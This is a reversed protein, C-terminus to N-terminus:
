DFLTPETPRITPSRRGRLAFRDSTAADPVPLGHRRLSRHVRARVLDRYHRPTEAGQAYLEGYRDLLGPHERRLWFFFLEKVGSALYLSTPLVAGAGAGTLTGILDDLQEASDTLEPLIPAVFVTPAFGADRMARLTKLRAGTPPTGPELSRQLREDLFAISMGLEVNVRRSAAALQDLDRRILPGKTLISFSIGM